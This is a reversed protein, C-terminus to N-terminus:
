FELVLLSIDDEFDNAGHWASIRHDLQQVVDSIKLQRTEEVFLRLRESGFMEGTPAECETIGDSYIFIRDGSGYNLSVSEYNIDSIIGVPLNGHAIFTAPLHNPLHLSHPHGAQCLDITRNLTDIVGYIMTFYLINDKDTQFRQNLSAVVAPASNLKKAIRRDPIKLAASKFDDSNGTDPSLLRSLTFSQMASAIGHGAVDIIYFGVHHDALPFINFIDGSLHTSPHFLWDISIGQFQIAVTPLLSRQMAMAMLLDRNIVENAAMLKQSTEALRVNNDQLNKELTLIREGARIRARLEDLQIPKRIFDDAGAEMGLVAYEADELSTVLIMYTYFPLNLERVRQCLEDGNGGPMLWDTIVLQIEESVIIALAANIDGATLADYGWKNMNKKLMVCTLPNDEVILIRM